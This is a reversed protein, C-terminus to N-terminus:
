GTRYAMIALHRADFSHTLFPDRERHRWTAPAWVDRREEHEGGPARDRRHGFEARVDVPRRGDRDLAPAEVDREGQTHEFSGVTPEEDARQERMVDVITDLPGVGEIAVAARPDNTSGPVTGPACVM